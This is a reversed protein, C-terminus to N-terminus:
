QELQKAHARESDAQCARAHLNKLTSAASLSAGLGQLPAEDTDVVAPQVSASLSAPPGPGPTVTRRIQQCQGGCPIM